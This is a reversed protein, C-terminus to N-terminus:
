PQAMLYREYDCGVCVWDTYGMHPGVIKQDERGCRDCPMVRWDPSADIESALELLATSLDGDDFSSYKTLLVARIERRIQDRDFPHGSM